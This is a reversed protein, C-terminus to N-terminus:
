RHSGYRRAGQQQRGGGRQRESRQQGDDRGLGVLIGHRGGGDARDLHAEQREADALGHDDVQWAVHLIHQDGVRSIAL